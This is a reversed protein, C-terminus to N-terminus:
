KKNMNWRNGDLNGDRTMMERLEYRMSSLWVDIEM